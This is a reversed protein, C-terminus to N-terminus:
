NQASEKTWFRDFLVIHSITEQRNFVFGRGDDVWNARFLIQFTEPFRVAVRPKGTAAEYVWIANVERSEQRPFSIFRGDPSFM